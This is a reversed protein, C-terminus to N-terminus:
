LYVFFVLYRRFGVVESKIILFVFKKTLRFVVYGVAIFYLFQYTFSREALNEATDIMCVSFCNSYFDQLILFLKLFLSLYLCSNQQFESLSIRFALPVDDSDKFLECESLM